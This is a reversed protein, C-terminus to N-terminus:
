NAIVLSDCLVGKAATKNKAQQNIEHVIRLRIQIRFYIHHTPNLAQPGALLPNHPLYASPATPACGLALPLIHFRGNVGNNSTKSTYNTVIGRSRLIRM